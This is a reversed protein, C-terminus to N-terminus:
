FNCLCLQRELILAEVCRGRAAVVDAIVVRIALVNVITVMMIIVSTIIITAM